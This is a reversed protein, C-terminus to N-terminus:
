QRRPPRERRKIEFIRRLIELVAELDAAKRGRLIYDIKALAEARRDSVYENFDFLEHLEVIM